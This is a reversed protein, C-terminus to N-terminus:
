NEDDQMNKGNFLYPHVRFVDIIYNLKKQNNHDISVLMPIDSFKFLIENITTSYQHLIISLFFKESSSLGRVKTKLYDINFGVVEGGFLGKRFYICKEYPLLPTDFVRSWFREVFKKRTYKSYKCNIKEIIEDIYLNLFGIYEKIKVNSMSDTNKYGYYDHVFENRLKNIKNINEEDFDIKISCNEQMITLLNFLSEKSIKNLYREVLLEINNRDYPNEIMSRKLENIDFKKDIKQPFSILMVRNVNLITSEFISYSYIFFAECNNDDIIKILEEIRHKSDKLSSLLEDKILM